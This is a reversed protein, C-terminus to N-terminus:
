SVIASYRCIAKKRLFSECVRRVRRNSDTATTKDLQRDVHM